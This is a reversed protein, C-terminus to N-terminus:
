GLRVQMRHLGYLLRHARWVVQWLGKYYWSNSEQSKALALSMLCSFRLIWRLSGHFHSLNKKESLYRGYSVGALQHPKQETIFNRGHWRYASVPQDIFGVASRSLGRLFFDRDEFRLTEDYPGLGSVPDFACRRIMVSGGPMGWNLILERAMFRPHLLARKDMKWFEQIASECLRKGEVDIVVGDGFIVLWEPHAQLAQIRLRLGEPMLCDDSALLAIYEGQALRILHNLTKTIGQNKQQLLRIKIRSDPHQIIWTQTVAFSDDTSGDDMILVEIPDYQSNLISDLSARIYRAHNYLPVVVSVLSNSSHADSM